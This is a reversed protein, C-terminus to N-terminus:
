FMALTSSRRAVRPLAHGGDDISDGVRAPMNEVPTAVPCPTDTSAIARIPSAAARRWTRAAADAAPYWDIRAEADQRGELRRQVLRLVLPSAGLQVFNQAPTSRRTSRGTRAPRRTRHQEALRVGDGLGDGGAVLGDVVLPRRVRCATSPRAPCSLPAAVCTASRFSRMREARCAPPLAFSSISWRERRVSFIAVARRLCPARSCLRCPRRAPRRCRRQDAAGGRAAHCTTPSSGCPTRWRPRARELPRVARTVGIARSPPLMAPESESSPGPRRAVAGAAHQGLGGRRVVGERRLEGRLDVGHVGGAVRGVARRPWAKKPDSPRRGAASPRITSGVSTEPMAEPSARSPHGRRRCRRARDGLDAGPRARGVAGPGRDDAADPGGGLRSSSWDM